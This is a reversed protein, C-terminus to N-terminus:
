IARDRAPPGRSDRPLNEGDEVFCGTKIARDQAPTGCSDFPQAFALPSTSCHFLDCPSHDVSAAIEDLSERAAKHAAVAVQSAPQEALTSAPQQPLRHSAKVKAKKAVPAVAKMTTPVKESTPVEEATPAPEEANQSRSRSSFAFGYQERMHCRHNQLKEADGDDQLRDDCSTKHAAAHHVPPQQEVDAPVFESADARLTAGFAPQQMQPQWGVAVQVFQCLSWVVLDLREMVQWHRETAEVERNRLNRAHGPSVASNVANAFTVEGQEHLPPRQQPQRRKQKKRRRADPSKRHVM